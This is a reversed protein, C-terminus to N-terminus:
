MYCKLAPLVKQALKSLPWNAAIRYVFSEFVAFIKAGCKELVLLAINLPMTGERRCGSILRNVKYLVEM